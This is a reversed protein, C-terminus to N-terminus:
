TSSMFHLSGKEPMPRGGTRRGIEKDKGAELTRIQQVVKRIAWIMLHPSRPLNNRPLMLLSLKMQTGRSGRLGLDNFCTIVLHM